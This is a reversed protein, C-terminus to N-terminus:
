EMFFNRDILSVENEASPKGMVLVIDAHEASTMPTVCQARFLISLYERLTFADNRTYNGYYDNNQAPIGDFVILRNQIDVFGYNLTKCRSTLNHTFFCNKPDYLKIEEGTQSVAMVGVFCEDIENFSKYGAYLNINFTVSDIDNAAKALDIDIYEAADSHTIDGSMVLASDKFNANWGIHSKEGGLLDARAHLDLDVREKDNWYVFFRIRNTGEPIRYAMGARIYGGESSKDGIRITSRDIDFDPMSVYVRKKFLPTEVAELRKRLLTSLMLSITLAEDYREPSSWESEPREFFSKLSVLTQTKLSAAKPLLAKFIDDSKYGNRLLLTMQRLLMGPREAYYAVAEPSKVSVLYKARSEWSRLEGNRLDAVAKKHEPSRSYENFDLFKLMLLTRECKKNSLILNEKFDHVPYSELLKVILRKQSTKFHYDARTLAYDMCKWIDGTHQCLARLLPLKQASTLEDSTFITNFVDLLNQKFKVTVGAIDEPSLEKLCARIIMKQKDDMRETRSLIKRYPLRYKESNDILALVKASLLRDDSVVKEAVESEPMWGKSVKQGTFLEVGYTSMYHLVQHFRYVAEDMQMVQEPFNPYMPAAKVDGIYLRIRLIFSDIDPSGALVVLDKPSLTYGLSLLEENVTLAKVLEADGVPAESTEVAALRLETFLLKDFYEANNNM